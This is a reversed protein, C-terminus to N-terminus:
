PATPLVADGILGLVLVVRGRNILQARPAFRSVSVHPTAGVPLPQPLVLVVVGQQRM